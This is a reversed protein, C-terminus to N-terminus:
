NNADFGQDLIKLGAKDYISKLKDTHAHLIRRDPTVRMNRARALFFDLFPTFFPKLM